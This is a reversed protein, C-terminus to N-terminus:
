SVTRSNNLLAPNGPPVVHEVNHESRPPFACTACTAKMALCHGLEMWPIDGALSDTISRFGEEEVVLKAKCCRLLCDQPKCNAKWIQNM